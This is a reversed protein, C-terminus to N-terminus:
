VLFSGYKSLLDPISQLGIARLCPLVCYMCTFRIFCHGHICHLMMQRDLTVCLFVGCDDSHNSFVRPTLLSAFFRQHTFASEPPYASFIISAYIYSICLLRMPRLNRICMGLLLINLTVMRSLQRLLLCSPAIYSYTMNSPLHFIWIKGKTDENYSPLPSVHLPLPDKCSSYCLISIISILM